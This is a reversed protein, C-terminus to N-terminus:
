SAVEAAPRDGLVENGFLIDSVRREFEAVGHAHASGERQGGTRLIAAEARFVKLGSDFEVATQSSMLEKSAGFEWGSYGAPVYVYDEPIEVIGDWGGLQVSEESPLDVRRPRAVTAHILRRVVEPLRSRSDLRDAWSNLDTANVWKLLVIQDGNLIRIREAGPM